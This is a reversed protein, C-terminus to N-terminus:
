RDPDPRFFKALDENTIDKGLKKQLEVKAQARRVAEMDIATTFSQKKKDIDLGKKVTDLNDLLSEATKRKSREWMFLGLLATFAGVIYQWAKM